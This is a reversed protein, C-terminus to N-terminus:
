TEEEREISAKAQPIPLGIPTNRVPRQRYRSGHWTVSCTPTWFPDHIRLGIRSAHMTLREVMDDFQEEFTANTPYSLCFAIPSQEDVGGVAVAIAGFGTFTTEVASTWRRRKGEELEEILRDITISFDTVEYHLIPPHMEQVTEVDLRSLLAKGIATTFAPVRYGAALVFRVPYTGQRVRLLVVDNGNLVGTYGTLGFEEVLAAVAEDVLGLIELHAQYLTGLRFALPGPRYRRTSQDQEVLGHRLLDKMLRSTTSKPIGLQRAVDSVRLEPRESSFCHLIDIGATLSSM